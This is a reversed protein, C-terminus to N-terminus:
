SPVVNMDEGTGAGDDLRRCGHPLRESLDNMSADGNVNAPPPLPKGLRQSLKLLQAEFEELSEKLLQQQSLAKPTFTFKISDRLKNSVDREVELTRLVTMLEHKAALRKNKHEETENASRSLKM